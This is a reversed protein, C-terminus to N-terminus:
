IFESLSSFAKEIQELIYNAKGPTDHMAIYDYLENLDHAADDTLFVVYSM